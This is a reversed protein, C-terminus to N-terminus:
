PTEGPGGRRSRRQARRGLIIALAALVVACSESRTRGGVVCGCGGDAITGGAADPGGEVEPRPKLDPYPVAMDRPVGGDEVVKQCAIDNALPFQFTAEALNTDENGSSDFARGIVHWTGPSLTIDWRPALPSDVPDSISLGGLPHTFDFNAGDLRAYLHVGVLNADVPAPGPVFTFTFHRYPGCCQQDGAGCVDYICFGGALGVFSPPTTDATAGTTFRAFVAQPQAPCGNMCKCDGPYADVLEYVTNPLLPASPRFEWTVGARPDDDTTRMWTGPVADGGDPLLGGDVGAPRIIPAPANAGCQMQGSPGQRYSVRPRVSTPVGTDADEPISRRVREAPPLICAGAERPWLAGLLALGIAVRKWKEDLRM